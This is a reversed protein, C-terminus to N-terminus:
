ISGTPKYAIAAACVPCKKCEKQTHCDALVKKVEESNTQLFQRYQHSNKINFKKQIMENLVCAANYDTFERGDSM